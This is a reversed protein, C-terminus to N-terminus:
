KNYISKYPIIDKVNYNELYPIKFNLLFILRNFRRFM